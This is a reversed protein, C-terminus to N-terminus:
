SCAFFNFCRWCVFSGPSKKDVIQRVGSSLTSEVRGISKAVKLQFDFTFTRKPKTEGGRYITGNSQDLQNFQFYKGNWKSLGTKQREERWYIESTNPFSFVFSFHYSGNKGTRGTIGTIWNAQFIYNMTEKSFGMEPWNTWRQSTPRTYHFADKSINEKKSQICKVLSAGHIKDTFLFNFIQSNARALNFTATHICLILHNHYCPHPM